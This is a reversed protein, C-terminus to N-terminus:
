QGPTAPAPTNTAEPAPTTDPAPDDPTDGDPPAGDTPADPDAGTIKANRYQRYLSRTTAYFDLSTREIQDAGDLAQVRIDLISFGMRLDNALNEYNYHAYLLPDMFYDGAKGVMDRPNSPGMFPLMLYPGEGTGWVGLTVGFDNSHDPVDAMSAVDILGALGLTSNTVFRTVTQGALTFNGQLLDNGLTVPKGINQLFNHIGTRVLSPTVKVYAKAVPKALNRDLRLNLDFMTRNVSELPDNQDAADSAAWASGCMSLCLATVALYKGARKM